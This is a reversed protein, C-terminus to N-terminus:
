VSKCGIEKLDSLSAGYFRHYQTFKRQRGCCHVALDLLAPLDGFFARVRRAKTIAVNL